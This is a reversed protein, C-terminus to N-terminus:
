KKEEAEGHPDLVKWARGSILTAYAKSIREKLLEIDKTGFDVLGEKRDHIKQAMSLRRLKEEGTVEEPQNVQTNCKPCIIQTLDTSLLVNMCATALTFPPYKKIVKKGHKDIIEEDAKEPIFDGNLETFKHNFDIKM